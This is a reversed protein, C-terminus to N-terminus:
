KSERRRRFHDAHFVAGFHFRGALAIFVFFRGAFGLAALPLSRFGFRFGRFLLAGTTAAAPLVPKFLSLSLSHRFPDGSGLGFRLEGLAVDQDWYTGFARDWVSFVVGFNRDFHRPDASHHIHHHHPSILVWRVFRPYRVPAELHHLNVTFMYIFFGAGLGYLTAVPEQAPFLHHFLALGAGAALGRTGYLLLPELPHQRYTTLPTLREAAHHVSHIEWLPRFKHMGRHVFYSAGDISLMTVLTAGAAEWGAGAAFHPWPWPDLGAGLTGLSLKFFFNEAGSILGRLILLNLTCLVLDTMVSRSTWLSRSFLFAWAQRLQLKEAFVLWLLAMVLASAVYPPFFISGPDFLRLTLFNITEERLAELRFAAV